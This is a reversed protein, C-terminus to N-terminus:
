TSAGQTQTATTKAPRGPKKRQPVIINKFAQFAKDKCAKQYRDWNDSWQHQGEYSQRFMEAKLEAKKKMIACTGHDPQVKPGWRLKWYDGEIWLKMPGKMGDPRTRKLSFSLLGQEWSVSQQGEPWVTGAPIVSEAEIQARTGQYESFGWDLPYVIVKLSSEVAQETTTVPVSINRM